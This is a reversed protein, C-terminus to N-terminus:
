CRLLSKSTRSIRRVSAVNGNPYLGTPLVWSEAVDKQTLGKEKRADRILVGMKANDM